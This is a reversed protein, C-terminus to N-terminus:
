SNGSLAASQVIITSLTFLLCAIYREASEQIIDGPIIEHSTYEPTYVKQLLIYTIIIIPFHCLSKFQPGHSRLSM